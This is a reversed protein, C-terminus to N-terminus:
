CRGSGLQEFRRHIMGSDKSVAIPSKNIGVRIKGLAESHM